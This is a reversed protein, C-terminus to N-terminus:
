NPGRDDIGKGQFYITLSDSCSGYPRHRAGVTRELAEPFPSLQSIKMREPHPHGVWM